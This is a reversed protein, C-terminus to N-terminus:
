DAFAAAIAADFRIADRHLRQLGFPAALAGDVLRAAVLIKGAHLTEARREHRDVASLEALAGADGRRMRKRWQRLRLQRRDCLGVVDDDGANAAGADDGDAADEAHCGMELALA